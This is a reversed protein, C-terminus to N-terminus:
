SSIKVSIPGHRLVRIVGCKFHPTKSTLCEVITSPKQKKLPGVDLVFDVGYLGGNLIPLKRGDQKIHYIAPQGSINLSTALLPMGVGCALQRAIKNKPVRVSYKPSVVISVPGPWYKKAIKIQCANLKFYKRVQALSSAIITFKDDKRKKLRIIREIAKISTFKCGIAYATDTPYVAVGNKKLVMIAKNIASKQM